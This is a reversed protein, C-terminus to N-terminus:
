MGSDPADAEDVLKTSVGDLISTRFISKKGKRGDSLTHLFYDASQWSGAWWADGTDFSPSLCNVWLDATPAVGTNFLSVCYEVDLM